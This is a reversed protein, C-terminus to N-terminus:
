AAEGRAVAADIAANVYDVYKSGFWEGALIFCNWGKATRIDCGYEDRLRAIARGRQTYRHGPPGLDVVRGRAAYLINYVERPYTGTAPYEAHPSSKGRKMESVTVVRM